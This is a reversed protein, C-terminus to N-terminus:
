KKYRKGIDSAIRPTGSAKDVLYLLAKLEDEDLRDVWSDFFVTLGIRIGSSFCVFGFFLLGAFILLFLGLGSM